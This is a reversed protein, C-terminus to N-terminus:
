ETAKHAPSSRPDRHFSDDKHKRKAKGKRRTLDEVSPALEERLIPSARASATPASLFAAGCSSRQRRRESSDIANGRAACRCTRGPRGRSNGKCTFAPHHASRGKGLVFSAAMAVFTLRV